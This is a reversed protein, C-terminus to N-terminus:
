LECKLIALCIGRPVSHIANIQNEETVIVADVFEAYQDEIILRASWAEKIKYISMNIGYPAPVSKMASDFDKSPCVNGPNYESDAPPRSTWYVDKKFKWGLAKKLAFSFAHMATGGDKGCPMTNHRLAEMISKRSWDSHKLPFATNNEAQKEALVGIETPTTPRQNNM